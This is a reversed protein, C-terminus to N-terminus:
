APDQAMANADLCKQTVSTSYFKLFNKKAFVGEKVSQTYEISLFNRFLRWFLALTNRVIDKTLAQEKNKAEETLRSVKSAEHECQM